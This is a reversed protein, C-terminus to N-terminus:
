SSRAGQWGTVIAGLCAGLTTVRAGLLERDPCFDGHAGHNLSVFGDNRAQFCGGFAHFARVFGGGGDDEALVTTM